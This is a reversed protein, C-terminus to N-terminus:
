GDRYNDSGVLVKGCRYCHYDEGDYDPHDADYEFCDGRGDPGDGVNGHTARAESESPFCKVCYNIPDNNSAYVRPM